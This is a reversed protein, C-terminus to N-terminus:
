IWQVLDINRPNLSIETAAIGALILIGKNYPPIRNIFGVVILNSGPDNISLIYLPTSPVELIYLEYTNDIVAVLPETALGFNRVADLKARIEVYAAPNNAAIQKLKGGANHSFKVDM